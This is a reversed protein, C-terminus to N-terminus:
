KFEHLRGKMLNIGKQTIDAHKMVQSFLWLSPVEELTNEFSLALVDGGLLTLRLLFVDFKSSNRIRVDAGVVRITMSTKNVVIVRETTHYDNKTLYFVLRRNLGETIELEQVQLFDAMHKPLPITKIEQTDLIILSNKADIFLVKRRLVIFYYILFSIVIEMM